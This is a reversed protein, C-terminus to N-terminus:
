EKDKKLPSKASSLKRKGKGRPSNKNVNLTGLKHKNNKSESKTKGLINKVNMINM